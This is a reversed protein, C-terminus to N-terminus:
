LVRRARSNLVLLSRVQAQLNHYSIPSLLSLDAGVGSEGASRRQQDEFLLDDYFDACIPYSTADFKLVLWYEYLGTSDSQNDGDAGSATNRPSNASRSHLWSASFNRLRDTDIHRLAATLMDDGTHAEWPRDSVFMLAYYQPFQRLVDDSNIRSQMTDIVRALELKLTEYRKVHSEATSAVGSPSVLGGSAGKPTLARRDPSSQWADFSFALTQQSAQPSFPTRMPSGSFNDRKPTSVSVVAKTPTVVSNPGPTLVAQQAQASAAEARKAALSAQKYRDLYTTAIELGTEWQGSRLLWQLCHRLQLIETELRKSAESLASQTAPGPVPAATVTAHKTVDTSVFVSGDANLALPLASNRYCHLLLRLLDHHAKFSCGFVSMLESASAGGGTNQGEPMPNFTHSLTDVMGLLHDCTTVVSQACDTYGTGSAVGAADAGIVTCNMYQLGYTVMNAVSASFTCKEFMSRLLLHQHPAGQLQADGNTITHQSCLLLKVATLHMAYERQFHTFLGAAQWQASQVSLVAQMVDHAFTSVPIAPAVRAKPTEGPTRFKIVPQASLAPDEIVLLYDSILGRLLVKIGFLADNRDRHISAITQHELLQALASIATSGSNPAQAGGASFGLQLDLRVLDLMATILTTLPNPLGYTVAEASHQLSVPVSEALRYLRQLTAHLPTHMTIARQVDSGDAGVDVMLASRCLLVVARAFVTKFSEPVPAFETDAHASRRDYSQVMKVGCVCMAHLTDCLAARTSVWRGVAATGASTLDEFTRNRADSSPSPGPSPMAGSKVTMSPATGSSFQPAVVRYALWASRNIRRDWNARAYELEFFVTHYAVASQMRHAIAELLASDVQFLAFCV